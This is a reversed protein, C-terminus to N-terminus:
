NRFSHYQFRLWLKFSQWSEASFLGLIWSCAPDIVPIWIFMICTSVMVLRLGFFILFVLFLEIAFKKRDAPM